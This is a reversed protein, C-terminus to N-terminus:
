RTSRLKKVVTAYGGGEADLEVFSRMTRAFFKWDKTGWKESQTLSPRHSLPIVSRPPVNRNVFAMWASRLVRWSTEPDHGESLLKFEMAQLFQTEVALPTGYMQPTEIAGKLTENAYALVNSLRQKATLSSPM